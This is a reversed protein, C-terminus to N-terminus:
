YEEHYRGSLYEGLPTVPHQHSLTGARRSSQRTPDSDQEANLCVRRAGM